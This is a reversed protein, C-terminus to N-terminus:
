SQPKATFDGSPGTLRSPRYGAREVAEWLQRPSPSAGKQPTVTMTKAEVNAAAQGVGQVKLLENSLKKACSPCHMEPISVITTAPAQAVNQADAIRALSVLLVAASVLAVSFKNM